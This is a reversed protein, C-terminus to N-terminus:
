NFQFNQKTILNWFKTPLIITFIIVIITIIVIIIIIIFSSPPLNHHHYLYHDYHRFLYKDLAKCFGYCNFSFIMMLKILLPVLFSIGFFGLSDLSQFKLSIGDRFDRSGPIKVFDRGSFGPISITSGALAQDGTTLDFYIM